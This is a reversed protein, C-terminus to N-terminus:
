ANQLKNLREEYRVNSFLLLDQWTPELHSQEIQAYIARDISKLPEKISEGNIAKVIEKSTMKTYPISDLSEMYEKWFLLVPEPNKSESAMEEFGKLFRRHRKSIKYSVYRQRIQKGFFIMVLILLLVFIGLGVLLYPYNFQYRVPRYITNDILALSDPIQTVVHELIVSDNEAYFATSDEPTLLYVPLSIQQISDIEFTSFYYVASDVSVEGTTLTPFSVKEELDFPAYLYTSDPFLVNLEAPYKVSLTYAFREGVKVSDSLFKGEPELQQAFAFGFSFIFGLVFLGKLV